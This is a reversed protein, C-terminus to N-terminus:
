SDHVRACNRCVLVTTKLDVAYNRGILNLNISWSVSVSAMWHSSLHHPSFLFLSHNTRNEHLKNAYIFCRDYVCYIQKTCGLYVHEQMQSNSFRYWTAPACQVSTLKYSILFPSWFFEGEEGTRGRIEERHLSGAWIAQLFHLVMLMQTLINAPRLVRASIELLFLVSVIPCKHHPYLCLRKQM